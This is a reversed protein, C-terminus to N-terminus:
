LGEQAALNDFGSNKSLTIPPSLSLTWPTSLQYFFFLYDAWPSFLSYNCSQSRLSQQIFCNFKLDSVSRKQKEALREQVTTLIIPFTCLLIVQIQCKCKTNDSCVRNRGAMSNATPTTQVYRTGVQWQSCHLRPGVTHIHGWLVATSPTWDVAGEYIVCGCVGECLHPGVGQTQNRIWALELVWRM